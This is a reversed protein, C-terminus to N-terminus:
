RSSNDLVPEEYTSTSNDLVPEEYTSTSNDLVPEEYTSTSNDLVPEEYTSTSNDLVPEEYTSTSNAVPEIPELDSGGISLFNEIITTKVSDVPETTTANVPETTEVSDILDNSNPSQLINQASDDISEEAYAYGWYSSSISIPTIVGSSLLIVVFVFCFIRQFNYFEIRQTESRLLIYGLLPVLIVLPLPNEQTYVTNELELLPNQSAEFKQLTQESTLPIIITPTQLLLESIVSSLGSIQLNDNIFDSESQYFGSLVNDQKLVQISSSSFYESIPNKVTKHVLTREFIREMSALRESNQKVDIIETVSYSKNFINMSDVITIRYQKPSQPSSIESNTLSNDQNFNIQSNRSTVIKHNNQNNFDQDIIESNANTISSSILIGLLILTFIKTKM